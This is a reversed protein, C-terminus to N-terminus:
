RCRTPIATSWTPPWCGSTVPHSRRGGASTPKDKYATPLANAFCELGNVRYSLASILATNYPEAQKTPKIAQAQSLAQKELTVASQAAKTAAEAKLPKTPHLLTRM